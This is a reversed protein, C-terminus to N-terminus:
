RSMQLTNLKKKLTEINMLIQTAVKEQPAFYTKEIDELNKKVHKRITDEMQPLVQDIFAESNTGLNVTRTITKERTCLEYYKRGFFDCVNEWLGDPSRREYYHEVYTHNIEKTQKQIGDTQLVINTKAIEKQQYNEIIASMKEDIKDQMVSFVIHSVEKTVQSGSVGQGSAAVQNAWQQAEAMFQRKATRLIERTLRDTSADIENQYDKIEQLTQRFNDELLALSQKKNSDQKSLSDGNIITNIFDNLTQRLKDKKLAIAEDSVKDGLIKMFVDLHSDKYKEDDGAEMADTALKTSISIARFKESDIDPYEDKVRQCIDDEQLKRNEATKPVLVKVIKPKGDQVVVGEKRKDSKTIVILAEQGAESLRNMYKMDEQLGPESSNLLFVCLDTYLLYKNVLEEMNAKDGPKSLAGTGPSDVWKLGSLEFFQIDGTTDTVGESFWTNGQEDKEIDGTERGKEVTGFVPKAIVKYENDFPAKQFERGAFFNGLTSKGTKVAGFIMIVLKKQNDQIFKLGEQRAQIQRNWEQLLDKTNGFSHALAKEVANANGSKKVSTSILQNCTEEFQKVEAFAQEHRNALPASFADLDTALRNLKDIFTNATRAIYEAM